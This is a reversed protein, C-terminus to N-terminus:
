GTILTASKKLADVITPEKIEQDTILFDIRKIPCYSVRSVKGIKSRDALLLVKDANNVMAGAVAAEDHDFSSAGFHADLGVPSLLAMDARYKYIESVTNQGFTSKLQPNIKGGLLIVQNSGSVGVEQNGTELLYAVEWSNTIVILGSLKKLEEALLTTTSGADIFLTQGNKIENRARKVMLKKENVNLKERVNIPPEEKKFSIAGGHIRKLEGSKELHLLDRRITEKSVNLEDVLRETSLQHFTNILSCIRQHREHHWM